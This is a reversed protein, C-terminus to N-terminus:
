SASKAPTEEQAPLLMRGDCETMPTDILAHMLRCFIRLNDKKGDRVMHWVANPCGVCVTKPITEEEVGSLTLSTYRLDGTTTGTMNKKRESTPLTARWVDTTTM